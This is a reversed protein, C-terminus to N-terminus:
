IHTEPPSEVDLSQISSKTQISSVSGEVADHRVEAGPTRRWCSCAVELFCQRFQQGSVLYLVFNVAHNFNGLVGVVMQAINNQYTVSHGAIDSISLHSLCIPSCVKTMTSSHTLAMASTERQTKRYMTPLMQTSSKHKTVLIGLFM